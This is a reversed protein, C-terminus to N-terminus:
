AHQVESGSIGGSAGSLTQVGDHSVIAFDHAAETGLIVGAWADWWPNGSPM